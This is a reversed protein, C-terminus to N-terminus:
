IQSKEEKLKYALLNNILLKLIFIEYIKIEWKIIKM